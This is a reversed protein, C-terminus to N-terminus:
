VSRPSVDMEAISIGPTAKLQFCAQWPATGQVRYRVLGTFKLSGGESSIVIMTDTQATFATVTEWPGEATPSSEFILTANLLYSIEALIHYSSANEGNLWLAAPQIFDLSMGSAAEPAIWPQWYIVQRGHMYAGIAPIGAGSAPAGSAFLGSNCGTGTCAPGLTSLGSDAAKKFGVGFDQTKVGYQHGIVMKTGNGFTGEAM